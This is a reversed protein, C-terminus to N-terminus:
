KPNREVRKIRGNEILVSGKEVHNLNEPSIITADAIWIRSPEPKKSASGAFAVASLFLTVLSALTKMRLRETICANLMFVDHFTSINRRLSSSMHCVIRGM